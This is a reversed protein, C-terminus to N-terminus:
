FTIVYEELFVWYIYNKLGSEADVFEKRTFSSFFYFIYVM